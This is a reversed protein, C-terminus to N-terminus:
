QSAQRPATPGEGRCILTDEVGEVGAIEIPKVALPDTGPSFMGAHNQRRLLSERNALLQAADQTKARGHRGRIHPVLDFEEATPNFAREYYCASVNTSPNACKPGLRVHSGLRSM